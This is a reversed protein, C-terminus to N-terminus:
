RMDTALARNAFMMPTPIDARHLELIYGVKGNTRFAPKLKSVAALSVIVTDGPKLQEGRPGDKQHRLIVPGRSTSMTVELMSGGPQPIARVTLFELMSGGPQPIARVTLFQCGVAGFLGHLDPHDEMRERWTIGQSPRFGRRFGEALWRWYAPVKEPREHCFTHWLGYRLYERDRQNRITYRALVFGKLVLNWEHYCNLKVAARIQDPIPLARIVRFQQENELMVLYWTAAQIVETVLEQRGLRVALVDYHALLEEAHLEAVKKLYDRLEEPTFLARASENDTWFATRHDYYRGWGDDTLALREFLGRVQERSHTALLEPVYALRVARRYGDSEVTYEIFEQAIVALYEDSVSLEVADFLVTAPYRDRDRGYRRMLEEGAAEDYVERTVNPSRTSRTNSMM